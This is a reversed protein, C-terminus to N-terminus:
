KKLMSRVVMMHFPRIIGFYARGWRNNFRVNTTLGSINMLFTICHYRVKLLFRIWGPLTLMGAMIEDVTSSTEKRISYSDFYHITGMEKTILSNKPYDNNKYIKM